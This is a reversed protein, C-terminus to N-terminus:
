IFKKEDVNAGISMQEIKNNGLSNTSNNKLNKYM